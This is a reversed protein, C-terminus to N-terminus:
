QNPSIYKKNGDISKLIHQSTNVNFVNYKCESKKNNM